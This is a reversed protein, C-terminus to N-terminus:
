LLLNTYEFITDLVSVARMRAITCIERMCCRFCVQDRSALLNFDSSIEGTKKLFFLPLWDFDILISCNGTGCSCM